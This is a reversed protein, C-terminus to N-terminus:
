REQQHKLERGPLCRAYAKGIAFGVYRYRQDASIVEQQRWHSQITMIRSQEKEVRASKCDRDIAGKGGLQL